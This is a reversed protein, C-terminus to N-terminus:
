LLLEDLVNIARKFLFETLEGTLMIWLISSGRRDDKESKMAFTLFLISKALLYSFEYIGPLFTKTIIDADRCYLHIHMFFTNLNHRCKCLLFSNVNCIDAFIYGDLMEEACSSVVVQLCIQPLAIWRRKLPQM